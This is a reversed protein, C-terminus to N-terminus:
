GRGALMAANLDALTGTAPEDPLGLVPLVKRLQDHYTKVGYELDSLIIGDFASSLAAECSWITLMQDEASTISDIRGSLYRALRM